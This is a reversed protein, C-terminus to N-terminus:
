DEYNLVELAKRYRKQLTEPCGRRLNDELDKQKVRKCRENKSIRKIYSFYEEDKKRTLTKIGEIVEEEMGEARLIDETCETDELVDHLVAIRKDVLDEMRLMVRLPHLIYDEGIKDKQGLHYKRALLMAKDPEVRELFVPNVHDHSFQGVDTLFDVTISADIFDKGSIQSMRVKYEEWELQSTLVIGLSDTGVVRVVDGKEFPNPIEMYANEFRDPSFEMELEDKLDREVDSGFYLLDGRKNYHFKAVVTDSQEYEQVCESWDEIKLLYPNTLMKRKPYRDSGSGIVVHKEISFDFGLKRGYEHALKVNAFCGCYCDEPAFEKSNLIYVYGEKEEEFFAIDEEDWAIRKEIMAKLKLDKTSEALEQLRVRREGYNQINNFILTAKEFDAFVYGEKEILDRVDRSPIIKEWSLEGITM